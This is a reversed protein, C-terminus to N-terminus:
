SLQKKFNAYANGKSTDQQPQQQIQQDIFEAQVTVVQRYVVCRRMYQRADKLHHSCQEVQGSHILRMLAGVVSRWPYGLEMALEAATVWGHGRADLHLLVVKEDVQRGQFDADVM